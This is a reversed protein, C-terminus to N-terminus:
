KLCFEWTKGELQGKILNRKKMDLMVRRMHVPNAGLKKAVKSATTTPNKFIEEMAALVINDTFRQQYKTSDNTNDM